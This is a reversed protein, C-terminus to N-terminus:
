RQEYYEKIEKNTRTTLMETYRTLAQLIGNRWAQAQKFKAPDAAFEKWSPLPDGNFAKGGVSNCYSEYAIQTLEELNALTKV